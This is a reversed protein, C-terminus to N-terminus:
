KYIHVIPSPRFLRLVNGYMAKLHAKIIFVDSVFIIMFVLGLLCGGLIGIGKSSKRYDTASEKKRISSSLNRVAVEGASRAKQLVPRMINLVEEPSYDNLFEWKSVRPEEKHYFGLVAIRDVMLLANDALEYLTLSGKTELGSLSFTMKQARFCTKFWQMGIDNSFDIPFTEEDSEAIIMEIKPRENTISTLNIGCIMKEETFNAVYQFSTGQKDNQVELTFGQVRRM